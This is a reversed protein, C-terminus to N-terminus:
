CCIDYYSNNAWIGVNMYFIQIGAEVAAKTSEYSDVCVELM